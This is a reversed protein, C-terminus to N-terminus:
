KNRGRLQNKLRDQQEKLEQAKPTLKVQQNQIIPAKEDIKNSVTRNGSTVTNRTNVQTNQKETHSVDVKQNTENTSNVTATETTSTHKDSSSKHKGRMSRTTDIPQRDNTVSANTTGETSKVNEKLKNEVNVDKEEETMVQDNLGKAKREETKGGSKPLEKGTTSEPLDISEPLDRTPLNASEKHDSPVEQNTGRTQSTLEETTPVSIDEESISDKAESQKNLGTSIGEDVGTEYEEKIDKGFEKAKDIPNKVGDKAAETVDAAKEKVANIGDEAAGSFKREGLYGKLKGSKRAMNKAKEGFDPREKDTNGQNQGDTTEKDSSTDNDESDSFKNRIGNIGKKATSVTSGAVNKASRGFGKAVGAVGLASLLSSGGNKLSTDVGFIATVAQSGKFLLFTSVVLCIIYLIPDLSKDGLFKLIGVYIRLELGTFAILLLSQSIGELAKNRRQGTELDTSTAVLLYFKKYMLEFICMVISFIIFLYGISLSAEGTFIVGNKTAYRRYGSDYISSAIFNDKYEGATTKGEDDVTLKRKLNEVDENDTKEKIKSISDPTIVANIDTHWINKATIANLQDTPKINEKKKKLVTILDSTNDQIIQMSPANKNIQTVDNFATKSHDFLTNVISGSFLLIFVATVLMVLTDKLKPPNKSTMMKIGIWILSILLLIAGLTTAFTTQLDTLGKDKLFDGVDFSQLLLKELGTNLGYLIKIAGWVFSNWLWGGLGQFQLYEDYNTLFKIAAEVKDAEGTLWDWM